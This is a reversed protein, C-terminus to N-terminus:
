FFLGAIASYIWFVAPTLVRGTINFLILVMLILFGKDYVRYYFETNRLNFLQTVVNFGDLPPIPLLNFVLLVINITVVSILINRLIDGMDSLMFGPAFEYLLRVLAMFMFALILNVTVGALAVLLEDRRPRRFNGPDIMVPRGWGFGVFILAIFGIPDIHSAPNITIRNQQKPTPDGCKYAMWAHAFEHFCIGIIVGPLINLTRIFWDTLNDYRGGAVAQYAMLFILLLAMPNSFFRKM